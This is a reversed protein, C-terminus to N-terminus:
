IEHTVGKQLVVLDAASQLRTEAFDMHALAEPDLLIVLSLGKPLSQREEVDFVEEIGTRQDFSDQAEGAHIPTSPQVRSAHANQRIFYDAIMKRVIEVAERNQLERIQM